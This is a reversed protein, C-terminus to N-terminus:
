GLDKIFKVGFSNIPGMIEFAILMYDFCTM